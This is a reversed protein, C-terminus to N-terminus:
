RRSGAAARPLSSEREETGRRANEYLRIVVRRAADADTESIGDLYVADCDLVSPMAEEVKARGAATLGIEVSKSNRHPVRKRRVLGEDELDNLFRSLTPPALSTRSALEGFRMPGYESLAFLIRFTPITLGLRSFIEGSYECMAKFARNILYPLYREIAIGRRAAHEMHLFELHFM